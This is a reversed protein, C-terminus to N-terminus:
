RLRRPLCEYHAMNSFGCEDMKNIALTLFAVSFHFFGYFNNLVDRIHVQTQTDTHGGGLANIVLPM